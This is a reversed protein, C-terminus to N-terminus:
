FNLFIVNTISWFIKLGRVSNIESLEKLYKKVTGSYSSWLSAESYLKEVDQKTLCVIIELIINKGTFIFTIIKHM